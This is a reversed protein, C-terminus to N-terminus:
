NVEEVAVIGEYDDKIFKVAIKSGIQIDEGQAIDEKYFMVGTGDTASGYYENGQINELTYYYIDYEQHPEPAATQTTYLQHIYISLLLATLTTLSLFLKKMKLTSRKSIYKTLEDYLKGNKTILKELQM